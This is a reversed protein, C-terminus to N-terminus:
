HQFLGRATHLMAAFSDGSATLKRDGAQALQPVQTLAGVMLVSSIPTTAASSRRSSNAADRRKRWASTSWMLTLASTRDSSRMFVKEEAAEHAALLARVQDFAARRDKGQASVVQEM